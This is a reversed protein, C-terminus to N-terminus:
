RTGVVATDRQTSAIALQGEASRTLEARCRGIASAEDLPLIPAIGCLRNAAARVRGRLTALGAPTALNLDAALITASVMDDAYAPQAQALGAFAAALAIPALYRIMQRKRGQRNRGPDTVPRHDAALRATRFRCSRQLPAGPPHQSASRAAVFAAIPAVLSWGGLQTVSM